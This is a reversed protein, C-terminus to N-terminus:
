GLEALEKLSALRRDWRSALGALWHAATELTDPQVAYLVERGSRGKAVVGAGELIQLQKVVAQRSVPLRAALATATAQGLEALLDLLQRRAPDALAEIVRGPDTSAEAVSSNPM